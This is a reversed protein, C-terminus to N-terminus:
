GLYDALSLKMGQRPGDCEARIAFTPAYRNDLTPTELPVGCLDNVDTMEISLEPALPASYFENVDVTTMDSVALEPVIWSRVAPQECSEELFVSTDAARCSVHMAPVHRDFTPTELPMSSLDAANAVGLHLSLESSDNGQLWSANSMMQSELFGQMGADSVPHFDYGAICRDWTPTELTKRCIDDMMSPPPLSKATTQSDNSDSRATKQFAPQILMELTDSEKCQELLKDLNGKVGNVELIRDGVSIPEDKNLENWQEVVGPGVDDVLLTNTDTDFVVNLGLEQGKKQLTVKRTVDNRVPCNQYGLIHCASEWESKRSFMDKPVSRSRRQSGKRLRLMPTAIQDIFTNKVMSGHEGGPVRTVNGDKCVQSPSLQWPAAKWNSKMSQEVPEPALNLHLDGFVNVHMPDVTAGMGDYQETGMAGSGATPPAGECYRETTPVPTPDVPVVAYGGNRLEIRCLDHLQPDNLLESLKTHGLMTESLELQYRARFIRKINALREAGEVSYRAAEMIEAMCARTSSWDAFPLISSNGEAVSVPVNFEAHQKKLLCRSMAYPVLAGDRYGFINKQSIALQVIHCIRGLSYGEFFPLDCRQLACACAYRSSPLRYEEPDERDALSAVYAGFAEMLHPPYEADSPNHVDVFNSPRDCLLAMWDGAGSDSIRLRLSASVAAHLSSSSIDITRLGSNAKIEVLRRKLIRSHPCIEDDYLSEIARLLEEQTIVKSSKSGKREGSRGYGKGAFTAIANVGTNQSHSKRVM